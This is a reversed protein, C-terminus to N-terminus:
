VLFFKKFGEAAIQLIMHWQNNEKVSVGMYAKGELSGKWAGAALESFSGPNNSQRSYYWANSTFILLGGGQGGDYHSNRFPFIDAVKTIYQAEIQMSPDTKNEYSLNNITLAGSADKNLFFSYIIKGDKNQDIILHDNELKVVQSTKLNIGELIATVNKGTQTFYILRLDTYAPSQLTVALQYNLLESIQITSNDKKKCSALLLILLFFPLIKLKGNLNKM